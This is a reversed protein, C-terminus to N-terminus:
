INLEDTFGLFNCINNWAEECPQHQINKTNGQEFGNLISLKLKNIQKSILNEIEQNNTVKAIIRVIDILKYKSTPLKSLYDLFLFDLKLVFLYILTIM